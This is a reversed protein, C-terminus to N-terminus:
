IGGKGAMFNHSLIYGNKIKYYHCDGTWFAFIFLLILFNALWWVALLAIQIKAPRNDTLLL